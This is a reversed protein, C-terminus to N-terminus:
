PIKGASRWQLHKHCSFGAFFCLVGAVYHRKKYCQPFVDLSEKCKEVPMMTSDAGTRRYRNDAKRTNINMIGPELPLGHVVCQFLSSFASVGGGCHYLEDGHDPPNSPKFNTEAFLKWEDLRKADQMDFSVSATGRGPLASKRLYAIANM